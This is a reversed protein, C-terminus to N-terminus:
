KQIYTRTHTSSFFIYLSLFLSLSLCVDLSRSLGLSVFLCRTHTHTYTQTHTIVQTLEPSAAVVTVTAEVLQEMIAAHVTQNKFGKELVPATPYYSWIVDRQEFAALYGNAPFASFPQITRSIAADVDDVPEGDPRAISIRNCNHQLTNCHTATHQLTNCHIVTNREYSLMITTTM